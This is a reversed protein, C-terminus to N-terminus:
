EAVPERQLQRLAEVDVQEAIRLRGGARVNVPLRDPVQDQAARGLHTIALVRQALAALVLLGEELELRTGIRRVRDRHPGVRAVPVPVQGLELLRLEDRGALLGTLPFARAFLPVIMM